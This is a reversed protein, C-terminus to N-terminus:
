VEQIAVQLPAIWLDSTAGTVPNVWRVLGQEAARPEIDRGTPIFEAPRRDASAFPRFPRGRNEWENSLISDIVTQIDDIHELIESALERPIRQWRERDMWDLLSSQLVELMQGVRAIADIVIDMNRFDPKPKASAGSTLLEPPTFQSLDLLAKRANDPFTLKFAEQSLDGLSSLNTMATLLGARITDGEVFGRWGWIM